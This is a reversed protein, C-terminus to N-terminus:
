PVPAACVKNRGQEKAAYLARDASEILGELAASNAPFLSVGISITVRLEEDYARIARQSVALRIREAAYVGSERDTETLLLCFEEGGYKGLLDIQRINERMIKAIEALIADGVLHGYRDNIEKFNDIDAMLCCATHGFRQSRVIEQSSREFWYRRTYVRTLSDYTAMEQVTRYLVARKLGLIFQGGLIQFKEADRDAIGRCALYGITKGGLNLALSREYGPEVEGKFYRCDAFTLYQALKERFSFFVKDEDLHHTIEKTIDYLAITEDFTLALLAREDTIDGAQARCQEYGAHLADRHSIKKLRSKSFNRKLWIFTLCTILALPLLGFANM